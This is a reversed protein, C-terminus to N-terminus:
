ERIYGRTCDSCHIHVDSPGPRQRIFVLAECSMVERKRRTLRGPYGEYVAGPPTADSM